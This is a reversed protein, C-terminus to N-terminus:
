TIQQQFILKRESVSLERCEGPFLSPDLTLAGVSVRRLGLVTCGVAACMRKVQHFKGECVTIRALPQEGEELVCFQAPLCLTGDGLAVGRAFVEAAGPGPPNSLRAEYQKYVKNKPSLMRHAFDGDDTIILLGETDRDLRGAPFLGRRRLEQPVLDLVTPLKPDRSASVVGAPKNMMIYRFRSFDLPRGAVEIAAAEADVKADARREPLGDVCVAGERILARVEKRSGLGQSALIQDLRKLPM